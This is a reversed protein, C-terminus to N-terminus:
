MIQQPHTRCCMAILTRPCDLDVTGLDRPDPMKTGHPCPWIKTAACTHCPIDCVKTSPCEESCSTHYSCSSGTEDPTGTNCTCCTHAAHTTCTPTICPTSSLLPPWVSGTTHCHHWKPCHRSSQCPM